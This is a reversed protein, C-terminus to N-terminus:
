KKAMIHEIMRWTGPRIRDNWERLDIKRLLQTEAQSPMHDINYKICNPVPYEPVNQPQVNNEGRCLIILQKLDAFLAPELSDQGYKLFDTINSAKLPRPPATPEISKIPGTPEESQKKKSM